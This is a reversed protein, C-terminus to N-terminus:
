RFLSPMASISCLWSLEVQTEKFYLHNLIQFKPKQSTELIKYGIVLFM